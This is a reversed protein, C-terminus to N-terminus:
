SLSFGIILSVGIFRGSYYIAKANDTAGDLWRTFTSNGLWYDFWMLTARGLIIGLLAISLKFLGQVLIAEVGFM